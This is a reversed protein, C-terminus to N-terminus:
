PNRLDEERKWEKHNLAKDQVDRSGTRIEASTQPRQAEANFGEKWYGDVM